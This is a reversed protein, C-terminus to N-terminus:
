SADGARWTRTTLSSTAIGGREIAVRPERGTLRLSDSVGIAWLGDPGSGRVAVDGGVEVVVGGTPAVDDAVLDAALAKASAGLDLQANSSTTVTHENLDLDIAAGGLSPPPRREIDDRCRLEDYDVDYGLALLAPLVTPDCLGGTADRAWLAAQLVRELLPSITVTQGARENLRTLESDSRFRSCARDIENLREWLREEALRMQEPYQTALTGSLGWVRFPLVTSTM